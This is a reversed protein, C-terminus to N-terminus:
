PVVSTPPRGFSDGGEPPRVKTLYPPLHPAFTGDFYAKLSEILLVKTNAILHITKLASPGCCFYNLSALHYFVWNRKRRIFPPHYLISAAPWQDCRHIELSSSVCPDTSLLHRSYLHKEPFLALAMM